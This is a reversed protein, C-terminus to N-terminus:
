VKSPARLAKPYYDFRIVMPLEKSRPMPPVYRVQLRGADTLHGRESLFGNQVAARRLTRVEVITLGTNRAIAEERRFGARAACLLLVLPWGSPAVQKTMADATDAEVRLAKLRSILVDKDGRNGFDAYADDTIRGPFLPKWTKGWKHFMRPTDNPCGHAFAILAGVGGYGLHENGEDLPNGYRDRTVPIPDYKKCVAVCKDAIPEPLEGVTPCIAVSEVVPRSRHREVYVEGQRTCAYAVVLFRVLGYSHWSRVSAVRWLSELYREVRHGTGIFDTVVVLTRVRRKRLADPGPHSLFRQPHKRQLRSILSALIGESGVVPSSPNIPQVPQPGHGHARRPPKESQEFVTNANGLTKPLEREAYLAMPFKHENLNALSELKSTLGVELDDRNVLLFQELMALVIAQDDIAVQRIWSVAAQSTSFM